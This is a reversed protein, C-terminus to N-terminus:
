QYTNHWVLVGISWVDVQYGWPLGMLVEPAGYTDPLAWGRNDGAPRLRASGFDSLVSAGNVHLMNVAQGRSPYIPHLHPHTEDYMPVSPTESEEREIEEYIEEGTAGLLVNYPTIEVTHNTHSAGHEARNPCVLM